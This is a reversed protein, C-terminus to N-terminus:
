VGRREDLINTHIKHFTFYLKYIARSYEKKTLSNSVLEGSLREVELRTEEDLDRLYDLYGEVLEDTLRLEMGTYRLGVDFNLRAVTGLTLYEEYSIELEGDDKSVCFFEVEALTDAPRTDVVVDYGWGSYSQRDDESKLTNVLLDETYEGDEARAKLAGDNIEVIIRREGEPSALVAHVTSMFDSSSNYRVGFPLMDGGVFASWLFVLTLMLGLFVNTYGRKAGEKSIKDSFFSCCFFRFWKKM